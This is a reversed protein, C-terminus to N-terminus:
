KSVFTLLSGAKTRWKADCLPNSHKQGPPIGHSGKGSGRPAPKEPFEVAPSAPSSFSITGPRTSEKFSKHKRKQQQLRNATLAAIVPAIDPPCNRRGPSAPLCLPLRLAIRLGIAANCLTQVAAISPQYLGAFRSQSAPHPLGDEATGPKSYPSGLAPHRVMIQRLM